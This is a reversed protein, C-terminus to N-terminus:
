NEGLKLAADLYLGARTAYDEITQNVILYNITADLTSSLMSVNNVARDTLGLRKLLDFLKNENSERIFVAFKKNYKISFVTGHFTDTVICSANKVYGLLQFANAAINNRCWRQQM